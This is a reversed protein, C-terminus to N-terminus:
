VLSRRYVGALDGAPHNRHLEALSRTNAIDEVWGNIIGLQAAVSKTPITGHISGDQEISYTITEDAIRKSAPEGNTILVRHVFVGGVSDFHVSSLAALVEATRGSHSVAILNGGRALLGLSGHLLDTAHVAVAPIAVSQLLSAGLEAVIFSKGVGTLVTIPADMMRINM